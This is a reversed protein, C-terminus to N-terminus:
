PAGIVNVTGNFLDFVLTFTRGTRLDVDIEVNVDERAGPETRYIRIDTVTQVRNHRYDDYNLTRTLEYRLNDTQRVADFVDLGFRSDLPDEGEYTSLAVLLDQKVAPAGDITHPRNRESDWRIDGDRDLALTWKDLEDPLDPDDYHPDRSSM